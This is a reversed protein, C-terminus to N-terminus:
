GKKSKRLVDNAESLSCDENAVILDTTMVTSLAVSRDKLFDIDRNTVIGAICREFDFKHVTGTSIQGPFRVLCNPVWIVM